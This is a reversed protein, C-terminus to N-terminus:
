KGNRYRGSAIMDFLWFEVFILVVPMISYAAQTVRFDVAPFNAGVFAKVFM